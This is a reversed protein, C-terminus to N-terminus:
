YKLRVQALGVNTNTYQVCTHKYLLFLFVNSIYFSTPIAHWFTHLCPLFSIFTFTFICLGIKKDEYGPESALTCSNAYKKAHWEQM